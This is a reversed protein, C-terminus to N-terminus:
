NRPSCRGNSQTVYVLLLNMKLDKRGIIFIAYNKKLEIQKMIIKNLFMKGRLSKKILYQIKYELLYLM